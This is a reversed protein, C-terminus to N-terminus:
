GVLDGDEDEEKEAGREDEGGERGKVRQGWRVVVM